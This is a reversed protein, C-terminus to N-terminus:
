EDIAVERTEAESGPCRAEMLVKVVPLPEPRPEGSVQRLPQSVHRSSAIMEPVPCKKVLNCRVMRLPSSVVDALDIGHQGQLGDLAQQQSLGLAMGGYMASSSDNM